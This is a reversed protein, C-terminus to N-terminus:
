AAALSAAAFALAKDKCLPRSFLHGQAYSCNLQRLERAQEELEVGEAVVSLQMTSALELMAKVISRDRDARAVESIFSRDIKLTDFPFRHLHSLSSYGTGFDDLSVKVGVQKVQRMLESAKEPDTIAISETVELTLASAPLGTRAIVDQVRQPFDPRMFQRPSVNVSVYLPRHENWRLAQLCAEQMVFEGVSTILGLEEAMEVFQAPSHLGDDRRWRLLAEFGVLQNDRLAVIPQYHVEIQKRELSHGVAVQTAFRERAAQWLSTGFHSIQGRSKKKADYMAIDANRILDHSDIEAGAAHAIGISASVSYAVGNVSLRNRDLAKLLGEAITQSSSRAEDGILLITFEDGGFRALTYDLRSPAKATFLRLTRDLERAVDVLLKDGSQHGASDNVLKFGDLDMFLVTVGLSPDQARRMLADDLRRWLLTKNPLMTLGDYLADQTLKQTLREREVVRGLQVGIQALVDLLEEDLTLKTCSFFELVADVKSGVLVPVALASVFGCRIAAEMRHFNRDEQLHTIWCPEGSELVRGPLGQGISFHKTASAEYFSDFITDSTQCIGAPKLSADGDRIYVNGLAWGTHDCIRELALAYAVRSSSTHNALTAIEHLLSSRQQRLYLERLGREAIREAELRAQRQRELQRLARKLEPELPNDASIPAILGM